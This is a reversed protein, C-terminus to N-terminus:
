LQVQLLSFIEATKKVVHCALMCAFLIIDECMEKIIKMPGCRVAIPRQLRWIVSLMRSGLLGVSLEANTDGLKKWTDRSMLAVETGFSRIKVNTWSRCLVWATSSLIFDRETAYSEIILQISPLFYFCHM